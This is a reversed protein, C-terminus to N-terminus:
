FLAIVGLIALVCTASNTQSNSAANKKGASKTTHRNGDIVKSVIMCKDVKKVNFLQRNNDVSLRKFCLKNLNDVDLTSLQNNDLSLEKLKRTNAFVNANLSEIKNYRLELESLSRL